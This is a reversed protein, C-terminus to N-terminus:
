FEISVLKKVLFKNWVRGSQKQGYVNNHLELAHEKNNYRGHDKLQFEPPINMYMPREIPAQPYAQVYDLQRTHWHQTLTLILLLRVTSWKSVPAYTLEYDKGKIMSSGDINLRAKYKKVKGSVVDRKRKLQWVCRHIKNGEPVHKRLIISFNGNKFQDNAEVHMAEIFHEKDPERTIEHYYMTDKPPLIDQNRLPTPIETHADPFINSLCLLEGDVHTAATAAVMAMM